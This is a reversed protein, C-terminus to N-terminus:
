GGVEEDSAATEPEAPPSSSRSPRTVASGSRPTLTIKLLPPTAKRLAVRENDISVEAAATVVGGSRFPSLDVRPDLSTADVAEIAGRSGALVVDLTEADSRVEFGRPVNEFRIPLGHFTKEVIPSMVVEVTVYEPSVRTHSPLDEVAVAVGKLKLKVSELDRDIPADHSPGDITSLRILNEGVSARIVRTRLSHMAAVESSPGDVLLSEPFVKVSEIQALSAVPATDVDPVVLLAGQTRKELRFVIESPTKLSRFEIAANRPISVQPALGPALIVHVHDQDGQLINVATGFTHTGSGLASIDVKLEKLEMSRKVLNKGTARVVFSWSEAPAQLLVLDGRQGVIVPKWRMTTDVMRDTAIHLWLLVAIFVSAVILGRNQRRSVGSASTMGLM